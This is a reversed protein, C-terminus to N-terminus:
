ALSGVLGNRLGCLISAVVVAATEARLVTPGLGVGGAFATLEDEDWGGEPGVAIVPHALSPLDGGPRALRPQAGALSALGTLPTVGGVEPL